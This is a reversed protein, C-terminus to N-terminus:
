KKKTVVKKSAKKPSPPPPPDDDDDDDDDDNENDDNNDEDDTTKKTHLMKNFEEDDSEIVDIKSAKIEKTLKPMIEDDDEDDEENVNDADSDSLFEVAKPMVMDIRISLVTFSPYIKNGVLFITPSVIAQIRAGQLNEMIDIFDIDVNNMDTCRFNYRAATTNYPLKIKLTAPYKDSEEQTTKDIYPKIISNCFANQIVDREYKKNLWSSSNNYAEDVIKENFEKMKKYFLAIKPNNDMDNFSLNLSHSKEKSLPLDEDTSKSTPNYERLKYPSRLIPMQLNFRDDNYKINVVKGGAKIDKPKSFTVKSPDFKRFDTPTISAM